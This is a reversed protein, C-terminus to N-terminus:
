AAAPAERAALVRELADFLMAVEIPKAVFDDIGAARYEAIQHTMANATIAVLPTRARGTLAEEARIAQAATPGDMVPMHVDLLVVDWAAGRWAELAQSGNSVITPEIGAQNLLTKLVLQNVPNDEAALLRIAELPAAAQADFARQGGFAAASAGAGELDAM